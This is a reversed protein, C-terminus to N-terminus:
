DKIDKWDKFLNNYGKDLISKIKRLVMTNISQCDEASYPPSIRVNYAAILCDNDIEEVPVNNDALIKLAIQKSPNVKSISKDLISENLRNTDCTSKNLFKHFKKISENSSIEEDLSNILSIYEERVLIISNEQKNAIM